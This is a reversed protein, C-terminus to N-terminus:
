TWKSRSLRSNFSLFLATGLLTSLVSLAPLFSEFSGTAVEKEFWYRTFDEFSRCFKAFSAHRIAESKNSASELPERVTAAM